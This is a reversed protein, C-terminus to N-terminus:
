REGQIESRRESIRSAFHPVEVTIDPEDGKNVSAMLSLPSETKSVATGFVSLQPVM